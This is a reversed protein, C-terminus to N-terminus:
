YSRDRIKIHFEYKQRNWCLGEVGSVHMNQVPERDTCVYRDIHRFQGLLEWLYLHVIHIETFSFM